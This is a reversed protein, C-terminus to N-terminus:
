TGMAVDEQGSDLYKDLSSEGKLLHIVETLASHAQPPRGPAPVQHLSLDLVLSPLRGTEPDQHLIYGPPPIEPDTRDPGPPTADSSTARAVDQETPPSTPPSGDGPLPAPAPPGAM